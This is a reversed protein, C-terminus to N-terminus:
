RGVRQRMEMFVPQSASSRSVQLSSGVLSYNDAGWGYDSAKWRSNVPIMLPATLVSCDGPKPDLWNVNASLNRTKHSSPNFVHEKQWLIYVSWNQNTCKMVSHFHKDALKKTTHFSNRGIEHERPNGSIVMAIIEQGKSSRGLTYVHTINPCEDNVSKM